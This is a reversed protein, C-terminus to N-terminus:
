KRKQGARSTNSLVMEVIVVFLAILLTERWFERGYRVRSVASDLKEIDPIRHVQIGPIRKKLETLSIPTLDSERPDINVSKVGLLTEGHYFRYNGPRDSQPLRLTNQRGVMEPLVSITEGTPTEVSYPANVRDPNLPFSVPEGVTTGRYDMFDPSALYATSRVILPSFISTYGFDSWTSSIGSAAFLVKGKEIHTECLFPDGGTLSIIPSLNPGAIQVTRFFRPSRINEKGKEFMGSFIPHGFDCRGVTFYAGEEVSSELVNILSFGLCPETFQTDLVKLDVDDGMFLFLGGGKKVFEFIREGDHLDFAPYNSCFVVDSKDLLSFWDEGYILPYVTFLRGSGPHSSLALKLLHNDKENKGLLLVSIKEPIQFCFYWSNDELCEDEDLRLAGRIWGNEHLNIRFTIRQTEGPELQIVKQAVATGQLFVRVLLNDIHRRGYNKILGFIHVPDDPQFYTNEVGASLIGVNETVGEVPLIFLTGPWETHPVSDAASSFGTEQFDSILFIEQNIDRTQNLREVAKQVAKQIDGRDWDVEADTLISKIVATHHTLVPESYELPASWILGTEDEGQLLDLVSVAKEKAKLFLDSRGMSLSRDVICVMTSKAHKSRRGETMKCSPRAFALVFFLLALCRLILLLLQKLKLRRMKQNQFMKLFMISSFPIRQVRQRAFFHILVPIAVGALGFLVAINLFSFM